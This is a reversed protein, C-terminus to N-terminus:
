AHQLTLLLRNHGTATKYTEQSVLTLKAQNTLGDLEDLNPIYVHDTGYPTEIIVSQQSITAYPHAEQLFGLEITISGNMALSAALKKLLQSQESPSFEGLTSWMLLILDHQKLLPVELANGALYHVQPFQQQCLKLLIPNREIAWLEARPNIISLHHLVRGYGCGVELISEAKLVKDQIQAVDEGNAIGVQGAFARFDDLPLRDYISANDLNSWTQLEDHLLTTM